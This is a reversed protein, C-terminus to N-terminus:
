LRPCKASNHASASILLPIWVPSTGHGPRKARADRFYLAYFLLCASYLLLMRTGGEGAGWCRKQEKHLVATILPTVCAEPKMEGDWLQPVHCGLPQSHQLFAHFELFHLLCYIFTTLISDCKPIQFSALFVRSDWTLPLSNLSVFYSSFLCILVYATAFDTAWFWPSLLLLTQRSLFSWKLSSSCLFSVTIQNEKQQKIRLWKQSPEGNIELM